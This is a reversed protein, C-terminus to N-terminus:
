SFFGLASHFDKAEPVAAPVLRKLFLALGQPPKRATALPGATGLQTGALSKGSVKGAM